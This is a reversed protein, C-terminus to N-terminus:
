KMLEKITERLWGAAEGRLRRELRGHRAAEESCRAAVERCLRARGRLELGRLRELVVRPDEARGRLYSAAFVAFATAVIVALCAPLAWPVGLATLVFLLGVIHVAVSPV